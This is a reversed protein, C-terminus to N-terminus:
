LREGSRVLVKYSRATDVFTSALMDLGIVGTDPTGPGAFPVNLLDLECLITEELERGTDYAPPSAVPM